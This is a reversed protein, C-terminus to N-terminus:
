RRAGGAGAGRGRPASPPLQGVADPAVPEHRLGREGGADLRHALGQAVVALRLPEDLRHVAAPVLEDGGGLLRQEPVQADEGSGEVDGRDLGDRRGRLGRVHREHESLQGVLAQHHAHGARPPVPEELGDPGEGGVPQRAGALGGGRVLSLATVHRRLHRGRGPEVPPQRSAEPGLEASVELVGALRQLAADRFAVDVVGHLQGDAAREQPAVREAAGLAGGQDVRELPHGEGRVAPEPHLDQAGVDALATAVVPLHELGRRGRRADGRPGVVDGAAAEGLVVAGEGPEGIGLVGPLPEGLGELEGARRPVQPEHGEHLREEGHGLQGGAFM